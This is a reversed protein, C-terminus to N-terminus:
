FVDYMVMAKLPYFIGELSLIPNLNYTELKFLVDKIKKNLLKLKSTPIKNLAKIEREIELGSIRASLEEEIYFCFYKLIAVVYKKDNYAELFLSLDTFSADKLFILNVLKYLINKMNEYSTAENREFFEQLSNFTVEFKKNHYVKELIEHVEKYSFRKFHYCRCRSRITSLVKYLNDTILIFYVDPSPEEVRKLLVNQSSKELEEFHDIIVIKKLDPVKIYTWDLVERISNVPINKIKYLKNINEFISIVKDFNNINLDEASIFEYLFELSNNIFKKDNESFVDKIIFDVLTLSFLKIIKVILNRAYITNRSEKYYLFAEKLQPLFDRRSLFILGPFSFEKILTCNKCKCEDNKDDLCNIIRTLELATTLRGTFKPGSFIISNPLYGRIIDNTLLSIVKDQCLVNKFM